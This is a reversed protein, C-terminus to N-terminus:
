LKEPYQYMVGHGAEKIQILWAGRIKQAIILSNNVSVAVDETVTVVLTPITIKSLQNWVGSNLNDCLLVFIFRLCVGSVM